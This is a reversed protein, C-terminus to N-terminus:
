PAIGNVAPTGPGGAQTKVERRLRAPDFSLHAVGRSTEYILQDFAIRSDRIRQCVQLATMGEVTFDAALGLAHASNAVGGVARNLAPSRYGSTIHVVRDDLLARVQELGLATVRLNALHEPPPTNDIAKATATDSKTFESLLFNRSLRM